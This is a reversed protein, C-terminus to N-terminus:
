RYVAYQVRDIVVGAKIASRPFRGELVYGCKRAVAQSGENWVFIPAYLRTLEPRTQWAWATMLALAESAIGRRWFARGIWWGVEGNCRLWGSDPRVGCCGIAEGGVDIAWNQGFVPSRHEDGCWAEAHALTYPRPFGEFLNRWVEEDDAHLAISPADEPVLPRLSCRQGALVSV